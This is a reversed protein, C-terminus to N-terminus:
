LQEGPLHQRTRVILDKTTKSGVSLIRPPGSWLQRLTTDTLTNTWLDQIRRKLPRLAPHLPLKLLRKARQPKPLTHVTPQATLKDELLVTRPILLAKHFQQKILRLPYGRALLIKRLTTLETQLKLPDSIIRKYRLAQTYVVNRKLHLPHHSTYHLILHKDTPKRYLTTKLRQSEDLYLSCDLFNVSNQSFEFTFKISNHHANATHQFDMLSELSGRWIFFIDDIFRRWFLIEARSHTLEQEIKAMFINAYPPAMKTGMATGQLQLYHSDLFDFYNEKLIFKLFQEIVKNTPTHPPLIDRHRDLYELTTSIGEEHPINTYLSTVDATVLYVDKPLTPLQTIDQLLHKTGKLFM